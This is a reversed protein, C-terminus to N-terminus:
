GLCVVSKICDRDLNWHTKWLVLFFLESTQTSVCFVRFLCLLGSFSFCLQLCQAGENWVIYCLWLILVACYQYLFLCLNIFCFLTRFCVWVYIDILKHCLLWSYVIPFPLRKLLHHQSFQVAVHLLIFNSCERLGCVFIFEFHIRSRFTLGSVVSSKSSFM